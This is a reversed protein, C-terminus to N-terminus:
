LRVRVLVFPSKNGEPMVIALVNVNVEPVKVVLLKLIVIAPFQTFLTEKVASVAPVEATVKLPVVACDIPPLKAVVKLLKTM